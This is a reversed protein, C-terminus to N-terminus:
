LASWPRVTTGAVTSRAEPGRRSAGTNDEDAGAPPKLSSGHAVRLGPQPWEYRPVTIPM